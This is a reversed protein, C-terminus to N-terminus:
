RTRTAACQGHRTVHRVFPLHRGGEVPDLLLVATDVDDDVRGADHQERRNRRQVEVIEVAHM